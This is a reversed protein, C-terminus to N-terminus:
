EEILENVKVEKMQNVFRNSLLAFALIGTFELMTVFFEEIIRNPMNGTLASIDGFGVTTMTTTVFYIADAYVLIFDYNSIKERKLYM